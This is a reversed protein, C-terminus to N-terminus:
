WIAEVIWWAAKIVLLSAVFAGFALALLVLTTMTIWIVRWWNPHERKFRESEAHKDDLAM